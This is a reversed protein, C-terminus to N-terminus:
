IIERNSQIKADIEVYPYNSCVRMVDDYQEDSLNRLISRREEHDTAVFQRINFINRKKTQFHRLYSEDIHPLQLLNSRNKNWCAQVIMPSLKMINEFAELKPM